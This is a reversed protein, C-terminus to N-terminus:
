FRSYFPDGQLDRLSAASLYFVDFSGGAAPPSHLPSICGFDGESPEEM